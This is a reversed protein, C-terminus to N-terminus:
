HIVNTNDIKSAIFEDVVKQCADKITQYSTENKLKIKKLGPHKLFECQRNFHNEFKQPNGIINWGKRVDMTEGLFQNYKQHYLNKSFDWKKRMHVGDTNIQSNERVSSTWQHVSTLIDCYDDTFRKYKQKM